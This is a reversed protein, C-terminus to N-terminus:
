KLEGQGVRGGFLNRFQGKAIKRRRVFKTAIPAFRVHVRRTVGVTKHTCPRALHAHISKTIFRFSM